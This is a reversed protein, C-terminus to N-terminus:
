KFAEQVEQLTVDWYKILDRVLAKQFQKDSRVSNPVLFFPMRGTSKKAPHSFKTGHRAKGGIREFGLKELVQCFVESTFEPPRWGDGM